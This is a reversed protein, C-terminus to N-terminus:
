LKYQAKRMEKITKDNILSFPFMADTFAALYLLFSPGHCNFSSLPKYYSDGPAFDRVLM